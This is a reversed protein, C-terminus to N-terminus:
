QSGYVKEIDEKIEPPVLDSLDGGYRAIERVLTSSVHRLEAAPFFITEVGYSLRKNLEAMVTEEEFQYGNRVGRIIVDVGHLICYDALLGEGADITVNDLHEVARGILTM